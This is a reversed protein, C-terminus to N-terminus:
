EVAMWEGVQMVGREIDKVRVRGMRDPLGSYVSLCVNKEECVKGEEVVEVVGTDLELRWMGM